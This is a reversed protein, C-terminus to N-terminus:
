QGAYVRVGLSRCANIASRLEDRTGMRGQLRYSVPQYAFYWPNLDNSFTEFSMVQEQAPFLKVGMYGMKSLMSCEKQVESHPWMFLEVIAGKQGSRYDGTSEMVPHVPPANWVFDIPDLSVKTGDEGLVTVSVPSKDASTFKKVNDTQTVGDFQYTLTKSDRHTAIVEATVSSLSADYVMHVHAALAYYSQYSSKYDPESPNPTFWRHDEFSPDTVITNGSCQKFTSTPL